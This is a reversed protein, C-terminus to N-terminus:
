RGCQWDNTLLPGQKVTRKAAHLAKDLRWRPGFALGGVCCCGAPPSICCIASCYCLFRAQGLCCGHEQWSLCSGTRLAASTQWTENGARTADGQSGLMQNCTWRTHYCASVASGATSVGATSVGAPRCAAVRWVQQGRLHLLTHLLLVQLCGPLYQMLLSGEAAAAAAAPVPQDLLGALVPLHLLLLLLVQGQVATWQALSQQASWLECCCWRHSV